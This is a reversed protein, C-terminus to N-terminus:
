TNEEICVLIFEKEVKYYAKFHLNNETRSESALFSGEDHPFFNEVYLHKRFDVGDADLFKFMAEKASWHLLLHTLEKHPDIFEADSVIRSKVRQIKESIYEIDLGIEEDKNLAISVYDRTHSVSIHFSKDTLFPKGSLTYYVHKEEGTLEKILVRASLIELIRSQSKITNINDLWEKHLLYSLLEDKSEEVKWIGILTSETIYGKYYLM